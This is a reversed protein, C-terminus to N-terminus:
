PSLKRGIRFGVSPYRIGDFEKYRAAARLGWPHHGWYGGRLVRFICDDIERASGDGPNASNNKDWCDQTWERVNGHVNYLGWANPEFSDVPVTKQRYEGRGGGNYAHRGDYNAQRPTISSGWWFPTTTGARTVYEREAESLLRYIRGTKGTLWHAYRKADDWSVNIVPRTGRGWGQDSPQYGNCGGDALCADWEDFTVAFKGVAFPEAITAGFQGEDSAREPEDYPSGMMFNGAPVVVMEPCHPCPQGNALSDRFSRGSGPTVVLAPDRRADDAQRGSQAEEASSKAEVADRAQVQAEAAGGAIVVLGFVAAAFVRNVGIETDTRRYNLFTKNTM